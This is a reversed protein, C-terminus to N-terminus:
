DGAVYGKLESNCNFIAFVSVSVLLKINFVGSYSTPDIMQIDCLVAGHQQLAAAISNFQINDIDLHTSHQM